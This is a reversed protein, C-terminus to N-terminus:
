PAEVLSRLQFKLSDNYLFTEVFQWPRPLHAPSPFPSARQIAQMAMQLTQPEFQPRRLVEIALVSGDANLRVLLVPISALPDPLPGSFTEAPNAQVIRAAAQLRYEDWSRARAAPVPSAPAPTAGGPAPVQPAPSAVPPVAPPAPRRSACAGLLAASLILTTVAPALRRVGMAFETFRM